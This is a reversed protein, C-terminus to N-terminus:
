IHQCKSLNAPGVKEGSALPSGDIKSVKLKVYLESIKLDLNDMSNQRSIRFEFPGESSLQSLFRIVDYYADSVSTQTTPLEFLNLESVIGEKFEDENFTTM